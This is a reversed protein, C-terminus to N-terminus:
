EDGWAPAAPELRSRLVARAEDYNPVYSYLRNSGQKESLIRALIANNNQDFKADIYDFVRSTKAIRAETEGTYMEDFDVDFNFNSVILTRAPNKWRADIRIPLSRTDRTDWVTATSDSIVSRCRVTM